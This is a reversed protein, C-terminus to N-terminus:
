NVCVCVSVRAHLSHVRYIRQNYCGARPVQATSGAATGTTVRGGCAFLRPPSPAATCRHSLWCYCGDPNFGRAVEVRAARSAVGVCIDARARGTGSEVGDVRYRVSPAAGLAPFGASGVLSRRGRLLRIGRRLRDRAGLRVVLVLHVLDALFAAPVLGRVIVVRGGRGDRLPHTRASAISGSGRSGPAGKRGAM